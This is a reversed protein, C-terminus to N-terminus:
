LSELFKTVSPNRDQTQCEQISEAEFEDKTILVNLLANSLELLNTADVSTWGLMQSIEAEKKSLGPQQFVFFDLASRFVITEATYDLILETIASPLQLYTLIKPKVESLPICETGQQVPYNLDVKDENFYFTIQKM